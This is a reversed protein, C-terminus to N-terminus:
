LKKPIKSNKKINSIEVFIHFLRHEIEILYEIFFLFLITRFFIM